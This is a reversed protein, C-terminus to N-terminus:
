VATCCIHNLGHGQSSLGVRAARMNCTYSYRLEWGHGTACIFADLGAM